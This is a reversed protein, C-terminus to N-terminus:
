LEIPLGTSNIAWTYRPPQLKVQVIIHSGFSVNIQVLWNSFLLLNLICVQKWQVEKQQEKMTFQTPM